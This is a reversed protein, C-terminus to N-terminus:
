QLAYQAYAADIKASQADGSHIIVRYRLHLTEGPKLTVSGDAIQGHTFERLGFINAAFLGYGRAQWHAPHHPNSPHDLIAIGAKEGNVDGSYDMWNSAKGWCGSEKKCGDASVMLGTRDERLADAVRISFGGDRHDGFKVPGVATLRFDFDITRESKGGYFIMERKEVLLTNGAPDLWALAAQINGQKKGSEIKDIKRVVITGRNPTTFSPENAYFNFGNVNTHGFWVGRHEPHDTTEGLTTQMPYRRTVVTGTAARLPDLYPKTVGAGYIFETYPKGDINVVVKSNEQQIVVQSWLLPTALSILSILRM